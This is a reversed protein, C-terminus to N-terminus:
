FIIYQIYHRVGWIGVIPSSLCFSSLLNLIYTALELCVLAFVLGQGWLFFFLLVFLIIVLIHFTMVLEQINNLTNPFDSYILCVNM